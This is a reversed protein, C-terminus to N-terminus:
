EDDLLTRSAPLVEREKFARRKRNPSLYNAVRAFFDAFDQPPMGRLIQELSHFGLARYSEFQSESFWQDSTPEHPFSDVTRGYSYVDYPVPHEGRGRLTPKIYLLRGPSTGKDVADYDIRAVACYLGQKASSNPYIEIEKEFKIPIGFDIRIKRIANGLDGLKADPDCGADCVMVYRCRRLVVEYLGLNDFHGGDSLNVYKFDPTTYGFLEGLMPSLAQRPGPLHYAKSGKANTNGLWAGLRVNFLSMVFALAPSSCYGMHPNAAAGSITVATGLSIGGLGGYVESARYGEHFNGCFYPTISFAEAKREQWALNGDRLVNLTVNILPLLRQAGKTPRLKHMRLNDSADFGTFPDPKRNTHSAGMYARVLRNRYFGHLSFRNVNVILGMILAAALLVGPLAWFWAFDTHRLGSQRQMPDTFLHEDAVRVNDIIWGGLTATAWSIVLVVCVVFIPAALALGVRQMISPQDSPTTTATKDRSGLLAAAVGSIGGAAAVLPKVSNEIKDFLYQGFLCLATIVIWGLAIALIWGSLRAWWERDGDNILTPTAGTVFTESMSALGVFWTRALLYLGLLVPLTLMVYMGPQNYLPLLLGRIAWTLLLSIALGSILLGGFEFKGTHMSESPIDHRLRYLLEVVLWGVLPIVTCWLVSFMLLPANGASWFPADLVVSPGNAYGLGTFSLLSAAAIVPFVCLLSYRSSPTAPDRVFRRHYYVSFSALLEVIMSAYLLTRGLGASVTSQVLLYVGQPIVVMAALLPLIVLWNLLLNRVFIAAATWTDASFLGLRPTLYNSFQRLHDVPKPEPALPNVPQEPRGGLDQFVEKATGMDQQQRHIWAQLWSAIYGGGSVSSLYDFEPLLKNKALSQLVGLNFTASRIGGGSLCLASLPAQAKSSDTDADLTGIMQFLERLNDQYQPDTGADDAQGATFKAPEFSKSACYEPRLAQLERWLVENFTARDANSDANPDAATM